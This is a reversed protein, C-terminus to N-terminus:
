RSANKAFAYLRNKLRNFIFYPFLLGAATCFYYRSLIEAKGTFRLLNFNKLRAPYLGKVLGFAAWISGKGKYEIVWNTYTYFYIHRFIKMILRDSLVGADRFGSILVDIVAPLGGQEIKFEKRSKAIKDTYANSKRGDIQLDKLVMTEYISFLRLGSSIMATALYMQVYVSGDHKSTNFKEFASKKFVLGGVFSFCSYYSFAIDPGSGVVTTTSARTFVNEPNAAETMNCFGLEPYNNKVLFDVLFTLAEPFYLSDDNGLIFYYDGTALEMSRRLNRDYGYNVPNRNYIIPYRYNKQLQTIQAETDDTSCDDNIVIEVQDYTQKELMELNKLLYAIRNYQPICISIKM